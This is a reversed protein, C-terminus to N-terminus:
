SLGLRGSRARRPRKASLKQRIAISFLKSATSPVNSIALETFSTTLARCHYLCPCVCLTCMKIMAIHAREILRPLNFHDFPSTNPGGVEREEWAAWLYKAFAFAATRSHGKPSLTCRELAEVYSRANRPVSLDEFISRFLKESVALSSHSYYISLYSNLLRPTLKVNEFAKHAFITSNEQTQHGNEGTDELIRTFLAKAEALIEPRSQPPIHLFAPQKEVALIHDTSTEKSVESEGLSSETPSKLDDKLVAAARRFPPKYSAYAHFVHMMTNEDVRLGGEGTNATQSPNDSSWKVMEALIWRTRALDRVRKAGELLAYLTKNGPSFKPRSYADRHSDFMERALRFAENVYVTSGSKACAMIVANYTDATPPIKHDITMETLLDLARQPENVFVFPATCARIM